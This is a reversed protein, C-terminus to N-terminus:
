TSEPETVDAVQAGLHAILDDADVTAAVGHGGAGISVTRGSLTADAIVPLARASGFPTIAGRPYGTVEQARAADPMSLRSVGLLARLKPWSITRLGPVLVFLFDGKGRRVLMTKVMDQPAVGRAEAAETLSRVLGHRVLSHNLGSAELARVGPEDPEEQGGFDASM